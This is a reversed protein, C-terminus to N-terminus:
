AHYIQMYFHFFFGMYMNHNIYGDHKLINSFILRKWSVKYAFVVHFSSAFSKCENNSSPDDWQGINSMADLWEEVVCSASPYLSQFLLNWWQHTDLHNVLPRNGASFTVTSNAQYSITPNISCTFSENEITFASKLTIHANIPLIILQLLKDCSTHHLNYTFAIWKFANQQQMFEGPPHLLHIHHESTVAM